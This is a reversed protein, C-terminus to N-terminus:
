KSLEEDEEYFEISIRAKLRESPTAPIKDGLDVAFVVQNGLSDKFRVEAVYTYKIGGELAKMLNEYIRSLAIQFSVPNSLDEPSLRIQAMNLMIRQIRAEGILEVQFM